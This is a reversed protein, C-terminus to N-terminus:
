EKIPIRWPDLVLPEGPLVTFPRAPANELTTSAIAYDGPFLDLLVGERPDFLKIADRSMRVASELAAVVELTNMPCEPWPNLRVSVTEPQTIIGLDLTQGRLLSERGLSITGHNPVILYIDYDAPPLGKLEVLETAPNWSGWNSGAWKTDVAFLHIDDPDVGENLRPTLVVTAPQSTLDEVLRMEYVDPSSTVGTTSALIKGAHDPNPEYIRLQLAMDPFQTFEAEGKSDTYRTAFWDHDQLDVGLLVFHRQAPEGAADIVRVRIPHVPALTADWQIDEAHSGDLYLRAMCGRERASEARIMCPSRPIGQLVFWGTEDAMTTVDEFSSSPLHTLSVKAGSAPTGDEDHLLGSIGGGRDLTYVVEHGEGSSDNPILIQIPVFNEALIKAGITETGLDDLAFAGSPDSKTLVPTPKTVVGEAKVRTARLRQIGEIRAGEVPDGFEDVLRGRHRRAPGRLPVTLQRVDAALISLYHSDSSVQGEAAARVEIMVENGGHRSGSDFQSMDIELRAIGQQDARGNVLDRGQWDLVFVDAGPVARDFPDIISVELRSVRNATAADGQAKTDHPAIGSRESALDSVDEEAASLSHGHSEGTEGLATREGDHATNTQSWPGVLAITTVLVSAGVLLLLAIPPLAAGAALEQRGPKTLPLLAVAWSSRDGGSKRDLSERLRDLGRRTWTKVTNKPVGLRGAVEEVSLEEFYRARLTARYPEELEAVADILRHASSRWQGVELEVPETSDVALLERDRQLNARRSDRIAGHRMVSRMWRGLHRISEKPAELFAVWADQVLDDAAAADSVLDRALLHLSRSLERISDESHPSPGNM